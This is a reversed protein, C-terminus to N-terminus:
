LRRESIVSKLAAHFERESNLRTVQGSMGAFVLWKEREGPGALRIGYTPSTGDQRFTVDIRRSQQREFTAQLDEIRMGRGLTERAPNQNERSHYLKRVRGTDIEFSLACETRHTRAYTRMHQDLAEIRSVASEQVANYHIGSWSVVVSAAIFAVIVLVVLLEL